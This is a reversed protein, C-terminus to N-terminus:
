YLLFRLTVLVRGLKEDVSKKDFAARTGPDYMALNTSHIVLDIKYDRDGVVGYYSTLDYLNGVAADQSVYKEFDHGDLKVVGDPQGTKQGPPLDQASRASILIFAESFNTPRGAANTKAAPVLVLIKLGDPGANLNSAQGPDALPRSAYDIAWGDEYSTYTTWDAASQAAIKDRLSKSAVAAVQSWPLVVEPMGVPRPGVQYQSFSIGLGDRTLFFNEYNQIIPALGQQLFSSNDPQGIEPQLKVLAPRCNASLWSLYKTKPKFIDALVLLKGTALDFNFQQRANVPHAAGAFYADSEIALSILRDGVLNLRYDVLLSSTKVPPPDIMMKIEGATNTIQEVLQDVYDKVAANLDALPQGQASFQPYHIDLHSFEDAESRAMIQYDIARAPAAASLSLVAATLVLALTLVSGKAM